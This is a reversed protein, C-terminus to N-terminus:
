GPQVQPKMRQSKARPKECGRRGPLCTMRFTSMSERSTSTLVPAFATGVISGEFRYEMSKTRAQLSFINCGSNHQFCGTVLFVGQQLNKLCIVRHGRFRGSLLILVQGQPFSCLFLFFSVLLGKRPRIKKPGPKAKSMDQAFFPAVTWLKPSGEM